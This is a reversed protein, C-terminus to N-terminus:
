NGGPNFKIKRLDDFQGPINVDITAATGPSKTATTRLGVTGGSRLRMLTGPYGEVATGGGGRAVLDEFM